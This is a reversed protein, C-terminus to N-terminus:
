WPHMCGAVLVLPISMIRDFLKKEAARDARSLEYKKCNGAANAESRKNLLREVKSGPAMLEFLGACEQITQIKMRSPPAPAELAAM